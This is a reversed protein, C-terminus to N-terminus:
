EFRYVTNTLCLCTKCNLVNTILMTLKINKNVNIKVKNVCFLNGYVLFVRTRKKYFTKLTNFVEQGTGCITQM